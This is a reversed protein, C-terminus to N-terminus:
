RMFLQRWTRQVSVSAPSPPCFSAYAPNSASLACCAQKESDSEALKQACKNIQTIRTEGGSSLTYSQVMAVTLPNAISSAVAAKNTATSWDGLLAAALSDGIAKVLDTLIAADGTTSTGLTIGYSAVLEAVRM